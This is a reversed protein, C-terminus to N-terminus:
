RRHPQGLTMKFLAEATAGIARRLRPWPVAGSDALEEVVDFVEYPFGDPTLGDDRYRPAIRAVRHGAGKFEPSARTM